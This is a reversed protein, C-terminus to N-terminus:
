EHTFDELKGRKIFCPTGDGMWAGVQNFEYFEIAAEHSMGSKRLRALVKDLDYCIIPSQGFRYVMGAVCDDYGDMTLPADSM